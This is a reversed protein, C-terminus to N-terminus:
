GERTEAVGVAALDATSIARVAEPVAAVDNATIRLRRITEARPLVEGTDTDILLAGRLVARKAHEASVEVTEGAEYSTEGDFGSVKAKIRM